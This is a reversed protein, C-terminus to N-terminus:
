KFNIKKNFEEGDEEDEDSEYSKRQKSKSKSKKKKKENEKRSKRNEERERNLRELLIREKEKLIKQDEEEKIKNKIEDAKKNWEKKEKDTIKKWANGVELMTPKKKKGKNMEIGLLFFGSVNKNIFINSNNEKNKEFVRGRFSKDKSRSIKRKDM